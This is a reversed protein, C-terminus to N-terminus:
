ARGNTNDLAYDGNIGFGQSAGPQNVPQADTMPDYRFALPVGDAFGAWGSIVGSDNLAYPYVFAGSWPVYNMDASATLTFAGNGDVGIVDGNNNIDSASSAGPAGLDTIPVYTTTDFFLLPPASSKEGSNRGAIRTKSNSKGLLTATQSPRGTSINTSPALSTGIGTAPNYIAANHSAATNTLGGAALVNGSPILTAAHSLRAPTLRAAAAQLAPDLHGATSTATARQSITAGAAHARPSVTHHDVAQATIDRERAGAPAVHTKTDKAHAPARARASPAVHVSKKGENKPQEPKEPNEQPTVAPLTLEPQVSGVAAPWSPQARLDSALRRAEETPEGRRRHRALGGAAVCVLVVLVAGARLRISPM